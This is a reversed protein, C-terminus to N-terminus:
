YSHCEEQGQREHGIASHQQSVVSFNAIVVLYSCTTEDLFGSVAEQFQKKAVIAQEKGGKAVEEDTPDSLPFAKYWQEYVKKNFVGTNGNEQFELFENVYGM